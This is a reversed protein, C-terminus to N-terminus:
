SLHNSSVQAGCDSVSAVNVTRVSGSAVVSDMDRGVFSEFAATSVRTLSAASWDFDGTQNTYLASPSHWYGCSCQWDLRALPPVLM